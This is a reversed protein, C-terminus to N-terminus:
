AKNRVLPVGLFRLIIKQLTSGRHYLSRRNPSHELFRDTDAYYSINNHSATNLMVSNKKSSEKLANAWKMTPSKGTFRGVGHQTNLLKKVLFPIVGM